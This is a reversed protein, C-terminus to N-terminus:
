AISRVVGGDVRLAADTTVAAQNSCVYVVMNAVEETSAFRRILSGPRQTDIVDQRVQEMTKGTRAVPGLWNGLIESATPGPLVANVTVGSGAVAEAVGRPIAIRAGTAALGRAIALGIGATSGSVSALKGNLEINVRTEKPQGPSKLAL